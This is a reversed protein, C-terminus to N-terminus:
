YSETLNADSPHHTLPHARRDVLSAAHPADCWAVQSSDASAQFGKGLVDELRQRALVLTGTALVVQAPQHQIAPALRDLRHRLPQPLDVVLRQVVEHRDRRPVPPRDATAQGLDHDRRKRRRRPRHVVGAEGFVAVM